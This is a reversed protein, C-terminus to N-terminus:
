KGDSHHKLWEVAENKDEFTKVNMGRNVAITEGFREPDRLPEHIVYAFKMRVKHQKMVDLTAWAAFEGYLFREADRPNGTMQRGDILVKTAGSHVAEDLLEIFQTEALGLEFEGVLVANFINQEVQVRKIYMTARSNGDQEM